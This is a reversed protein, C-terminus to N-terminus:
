RDVLGHGRLIHRGVPHVELVALVERALQRRHEVHFIRDRLRVRELDARGPDVPRQARLLVKPIVRAALGLDLELVTHRGSRVRAQALVEAADEPAGRVALDRDVDVPLLKVQRDVVDLM